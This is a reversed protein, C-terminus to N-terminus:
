NKLVKYIYNRNTELNTIKVFYLGKSLSETPIHIFKVYNNNVSQVTKGMENILDIHYYAEHNFLINLENQIPNPFFTIRKKLISNDINTNIDILVDVMTTDANKCHKSILQVQYTQNSQYIHAPSEESSFAGDNFDWHYDMPHISESLNNFQM